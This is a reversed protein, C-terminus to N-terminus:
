WYLSSLSVEGSDWSVSVVVRSLHSHGNYNNEVEWERTYQGGGETGDESLGSESHDGANWASDSRRLARLEELKAQALTTAVSQRRGHDDAGMTSVSMMAIGTLAIAMVAVAVLVEILTFGAETPKM